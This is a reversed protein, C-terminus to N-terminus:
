QVDHLEYLAIQAQSSTLLDAHKVRRPDDRYAQLAAQSPFDIIHVEVSGDTSALRRELTAGHEGLLALVLQEYRHFGEVGAAPVHAVVVQKCHM